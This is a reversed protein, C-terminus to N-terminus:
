LMSHRLQLGRAYSLYLCSFPISLVHWSSWLLCPQTDDSYTRISAASFCYKSVSADVRIIIFCFIFVETRRFDAVFRINETVQKISTDDSPSVGFGLPVAIDYSQRFACRLEQLTSPFAKLLVSVHLLSIGIVTAKKREWTCPQKTTEVSPTLRRRAFLVIPAARSTMVPDYFRGMVLRTCCFIESPHCTRYCVNHFLLAWNPSLNAAPSSTTPPLTPRTPLPANICAVRPKM